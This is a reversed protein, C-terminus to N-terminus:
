QKKTKVLDVLVVMGPQVTDGTIETMSGDTAGTTVSISVPKDDKLTWLTQKQALKKDNTQPKQEVARRHPGPLLARVGNKKQKAEPKPPTFRLAGNPVLLVNEIVRTVIEATATMGPRLVLDDNNVSLLAEYTVVDEQVNPAYNVKLIQANFKRDPYADVTFEAKQKAQVQGVDAEDVDVHLEMHALDEALTFLVPTQFSAAVTQGPEVNRKLVIGNIPSVIVAKSLDTQNASLTAKAVKVQAEASSVSSIAREYTARATDIDQQSFLQKDALAKLRQYKIRTENLTTKAEELKAKAADYSARSEVVRAGLRETDMRALVQGKKVLDNVDADVTRILGSLEVGVDVQNVPELTGTATVVITLNGRTIEATKFPSTASKHKVYWFIGVLLSVALLIVVGILWRRKLLRIAAGSGGLIERIDPINGSDQQNMELVAILQLYVLM